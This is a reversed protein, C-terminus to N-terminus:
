PTGAFSAPAIGAISLTMLGSAVISMFALRRM